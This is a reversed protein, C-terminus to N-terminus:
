PPSIQVYNKWGEKHKASPMGFGLQPTCCHAQDFHSVTCPTLFPFFGSADYDVGPTPWNFLREPTSM